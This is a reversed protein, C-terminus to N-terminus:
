INNERMDQMLDRTGEIYGAWTALRERDYDAGMDGLRFTRLAELAGEVEKLAETLKSEARSHKSNVIANTAKRVTETTEM